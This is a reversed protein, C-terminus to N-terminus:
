GHSADTSPHVAAVSAPVPTALPAIVRPLAQWTFWLVFVLAVAPLVIWITERVRAATTASAAPTRGALAARLVMFQAVLAVAAASWFLVLAPGHSLSLPFPISMPHEFSIENCGPGHGRDSLPRGTAPVFHPTPCALIEHLTFHRRCKRQLQRPAAKRSGGKLAELSLCSSDGM